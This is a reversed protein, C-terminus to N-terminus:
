ALRLGGPHEEEIIRVLWDFVTPGKGARAAALDAAVQERNAPHCRTQRLELQRVTEPYGLRRRSTEHDRWEIVWDGDDPTGYGGRLCDAFSDLNRGFYGDVGITRGVADWFEELSGIGSGDIVYTVTM